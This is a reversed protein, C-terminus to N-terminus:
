NVGLRESVRRWEFGMWVFAMAVIVLWAGIGALLLVGSQMWWGAFMAIIGTLTGASMLLSKCWEMGPSVSRQVRWLLSNARFQRYQLQLTKSFQSRFFENIWRRQDDGAFKTSVVISTTASSVTIAYGWTSWSISVVDKWVIERRGLVGQQFVGDERIALRAHRTEFLNWVAFLVLPVFALSFFIFLPIAHPLSPDPESFCAFILTLVCLAEMGGLFVLGIWATIRMFRGNEFLMLTAPEGKSNVGAEM